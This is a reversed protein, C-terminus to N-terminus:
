SWVVLDAVAAAVKGSQEDVISPQDSFRAGIGLVEGSAGGSAIVLRNTVLTLRLCWSALHAVYELVRRDEDPDNM